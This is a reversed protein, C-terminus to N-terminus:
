KIKRYLTAPSINLKHCIKLLNDRSLPSPYKQIEQEIITKEYLKVNDKFTLSKNYTDLEMKPNQLEIFNINFHKNPLDESKIIGKEKFNMVYEITNELERVNGPWSYNSLIDLTNLDIGTVNKEFKKNYKDIFYNILLQIDKKRNKLPPINIPIVNLRFYLDSRFENNKIMESLNKNTASIIRINVKISKESGIPEVYSDNLVRLLKAQLYLPMDGIEDLFLTGNNALVIKGVKGSKSAGTFAGSEYGFLESELLTEPISACNISIFPNNKRYSSFHIARAFLEKGTGTEGQILINSDNNSIAQINKKLNLMEPDQTVIAKLSNDFESNSFNQEQIKDLTNLLVLVKNEDLYKLELFLVFSLNNYYKIIKTNIDKKIKLCNEVEFKIKKILDNYIDMENIYLISNAISNTIIKDKEFLLIGENLYNLIEELNKNYITIKNKLETEIIKATILSSIHKLYNILKEKNNILFNQQKEDFSAIVLVGYVLDELMIPELIISYYSGTCGDIIKPYIKEPRLVTLNKKTKIVYDTYTNNWDKQNLAKKYIGTGAIRRTPNASIITFELNLVASFSLILTDLFPKLELLISNM